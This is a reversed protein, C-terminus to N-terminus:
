GRILEIPFNWECVSMPRVTSESIPDIRECKKKEERREEERQKEKRKKKVKKEKPTKKRVKQRVRYGRLMLREMQVDIEQQKSKNM